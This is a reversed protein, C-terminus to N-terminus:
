KTSWIYSGADDQVKVEILARSGGARTAICEFTDGAGFPPSVPCLVKSFEVGPQKNADTLIATEIGAREYSSSSGSASVAITNGVVGM